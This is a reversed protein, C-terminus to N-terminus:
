LCSRRNDRHEAVDIVAFRRQEVLDDANINDGAFRAADRLVDPRIEDFRLVAPVYREDIRRTVLGEGLHPSAPRVDRINGHEDNRGVVTHHRLRFFRDAVCLRGAHRDDHRHVLDIQRPSVLL